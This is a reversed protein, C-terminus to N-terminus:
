RGCTASISITRASTGPAGSVTERPPTPVTAFARGDSRAGRNRLSTAGIAGHTNAAGAIANASNGLTTPASRAASPTASVAAIVISQAM